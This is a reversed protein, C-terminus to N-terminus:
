INGERGLMTQLFIRGFSMKSLEPGVCVSRVTCGGPARIHMEGHTCLACLLVDTLLCAAQWKLCCATCWGQAANSTPRQIRRGDSEEDCGGQFSSSRVTMCQWECASVRILVPARACFTRTARSNLHPQGRSVHPCQRSARVYHMDVNIVPCIQAM